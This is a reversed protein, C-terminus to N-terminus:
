RGVLLLELGDAKLQLPSILHNVGELLADCLHLLLYGARQLAQERGTSGISGAGGGGGGGVGALCSENLELLVEYLTPWATYSFM